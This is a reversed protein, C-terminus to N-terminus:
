FPPTRKSRAGGKSKAHRAKPTARLDLKVGRINAIAQAHHRRQSGRANRLSIRRFNAYNDNVFLFAFIM